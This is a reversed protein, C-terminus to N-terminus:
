RYIRLEARMPLLSIQLNMTRTRRFSSPENGKIIAGYNTVDIRVNDTTTARYIQVPRLPLIGKSLHTIVSTCMIRLQDRRHTIRSELSQLVAMSRSCPLDPHPASWYEIMAGGIMDHWQMLVSSLTAWMCVCSIHPRLQISSLAQRRYLHM